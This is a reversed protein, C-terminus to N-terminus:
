VMLIKGLKWEKCYLWNRNEMFLKYIIYCFVKQPSILSSTQIFSIQRVMATSCIDALETCFKRM